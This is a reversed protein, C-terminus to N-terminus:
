AIEKLEEIEGCITMAAEAFDSAFVLFSYQKTTLRTNTRKVIKGIRSRVTLWETNNESWLVFAMKASKGERLINQEKFGM